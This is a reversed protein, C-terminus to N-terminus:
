SLRQLNNDKVRFKHIKVMDLYSTKDQYYSIQATNIAKFKTNVNHFSVDMNEADLEVIAIGHEWMKSFVLSDSIDARQTATTALTDFFVPLEKVVPSVDGLQSLLQNM